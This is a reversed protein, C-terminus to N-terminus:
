KVLESYKENSLIDQIKNKYDIYKEDNLASYYEIAKEYLNLLLKIGKSKIVNNKLKIEYKKIRKEIKIISIGPLKGEKRRYINMKMGFNNIKEILVDMVKHMDPDKDSNIQLHFVKENKSKPCIRKWYFSVVSGIISKKFSILSRLNGYFVLNIKQNNDNSINIINKFNKRIHEFLLLYENSICILSPNETLGGGVVDLHRCPLCIINKLNKIFNTDYEEGLYYRGIRPDIKSIDNTFIKLNQIIEMLDFKKLDFIDTKISQNINSLLDRGDSIYPINLSYLHIRNRTLSIELIFEYDKSPSLTSSSTSSTSITTLLNKTPESPNPILINIQYEFIKKYPKKEYFLLINETVIKEQAQQIISLLSKEESLLNM